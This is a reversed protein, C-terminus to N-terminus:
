VTDHPKGFLAEAEVQPTHPLPTYVYIYAYIYAAHIYTTYYIYALNSAGWYLNFRFSTACWAGIEPPGGQSYAFVHLRIYTPM